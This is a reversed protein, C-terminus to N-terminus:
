RLGGRGRAEYLTILMMWAYKGIWPRRLVIDDVFDLFGRLARFLFTKRLPVAALSLVHFFKVKVRGFHARIVDLHEVGLIHEVEWATRLHPTRRWYWQIVPNHRLAEVCGVMGRRKLIGHLEPFATELELHYLAGYEHIMDFTNDDLEANEVDM